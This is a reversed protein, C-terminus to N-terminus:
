LLNSARLSARGLHKGQPYLRAELHGALFELFEPSCGAASFDSLVSAEQLEDLSM